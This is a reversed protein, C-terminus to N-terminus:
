RSGVRQFLQHEDGRNAKVGRWLRLDASKPLERRLIGPSASKNASPATKLSSNETARIEGKDQPFFSGLLLGLAFERRDSM